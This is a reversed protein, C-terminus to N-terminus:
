QPLRPSSRIVKRESHQVFGSRQGRRKEGVSSGQVPRMIWTIHNNFATKEMEPSGETALDWNSRYTSLVAGRAMGVM